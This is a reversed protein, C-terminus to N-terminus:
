EQTVTLLINAQYSGMDLTPQGEWTYEASAVQTAAEPCSAGNFVIRVTDDADSATTSTIGSPMTSLGAPLINKPALTGDGLNSGHAKLGEFVGDSFKLTYPKKTKAYYGASNQVLWAYFTATKDGSVGLDFGVYLVTADTYTEANNAFAVGSDNTEITDTGTGVAHDTGTTDITNGTFRLQFAPIKETVITEVTLEHMETDAAFVFGAVLALVLLIAFVKKM